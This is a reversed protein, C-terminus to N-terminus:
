VSDFLFILSFLQWKYKFSVIKLSFPLLNWFLIQETITPLARKFSFIQSKLEIRYETSHGSRSLKSFIYISYSRCTHDEWYNLGFYTLEYMQTDEDRCCRFGFITDNKPNGQLLDLCWQM